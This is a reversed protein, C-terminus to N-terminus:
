LSLHPRRVMLVVDLGLRGYDSARDALFSPARAPAIESFGVQGYFKVLHRHPICYCTRNELWEAIERLMRSGVGRGRQSEAIRMGRLVFTGHEQAVRVLGSLEDDVIALWVTDEPEVAGGYSWAAYARVIQPFDASEAPRIVINM